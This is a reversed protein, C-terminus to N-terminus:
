ITTGGIGFSDKPHIVFVWCSYCKVFRLEFVTEWFGFMLISKLFIFGFYFKLITLIISYHFIFFTNTCLDGGRDGRNLVWNKLVLGELQKENKLRKEMNKSKKKKSEWLMLFTLSWIWLKLPTEIALPLWPLSGSGLGIM